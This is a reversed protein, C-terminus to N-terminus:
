RHTDYITDYIPGYVVAQGTDHHAKIDDAHHIWEDWAHYGVWIGAMIIAAIVLGELVAMIHLM